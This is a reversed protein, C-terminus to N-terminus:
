VRSAAYGGIHLEGPVEPLDVVEHLEAGGLLPVDRVAVDGLLDELFDFPDVREEGFVVCRPIIAVGDGASSRERPLGEGKCLVYRL